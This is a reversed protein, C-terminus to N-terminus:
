YWIHTNAALGSQTSPSSCLFCPGPHSFRWPSRICTRFFSMKVLGVTREIIHNTRDNWPVARISLVPNHNASFSLTPVVVTPALRTLWHWPQWAFAVYMAYFTIKLLTSYFIESDLDIKTSHPHDLESWGPSPAGSLPIGATSVLNLWSQTLISYM